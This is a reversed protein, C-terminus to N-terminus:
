ILEWERDTWYYSVTGVNQASLPESSNARMWFTYIKTAAVSATNSHGGFGINTTEQATQTTGVYFKVDVSDINDSFEINQIQVEEHIVVSNTGLKHYSNDTFEYEGTQHMRPSATSSDAVTVTYGYDAAFESFEEVSMTVVVEQEDYSESSEASATMSTTLLIASAGIISIIKNKNM